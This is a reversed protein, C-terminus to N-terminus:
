ERGTIVFFSAGDTAYADNPVVEDGAVRDLIPHRGAKIALTGTFEPRVYNRTTAMYAFSALMDLLALAESVQLSLIM